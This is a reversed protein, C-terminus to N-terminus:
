KIEDVIEGRMIEGENELLRVTFMRSHLNEKSEVKVPIYESSHGVWTGPEKEEEFLVEVDKQIFTNWYAAKKSEGLAILRKVREKKVATEVQGKMKAAVTGTRLSYPFVHLYVLNGEEVTKESELYDEESENPFGTIIDTGIAIGPIEKQIYRIRELFEKQTYPRNMQKLVSDSGAQLPIHLHRAMQPHEKIFAVIEDTVETVEISSIRIRAVGLEVMKKLVDILRYEGDQYRGTHIGTLVIERHGNKILECTYEAVKDFPLSRERGRAFPITCYSCFQNCGDEIKLFARTKHAFQKMSLDEFPVASTVDDVLVFQKKTKYSEDVRLALENKHTAGILVDIGEERNKETQVLCGVVCILADPNKRKALHIKQRSKQAATNTVTCTNIIYIDAAEDEGAESYGLSKLAEAYCESEYANVKCGLTLISFTPM